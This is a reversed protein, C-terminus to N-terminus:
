HACRRQRSEAGTELLLQLNGSTGCDYNHHRQCTHSAAPLCSDARQYARCAAPSKALARGALRAAWEHDSAPFDRLDQRLEEASTPLSAADLIM